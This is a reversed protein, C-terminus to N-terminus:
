PFSEKDACPELSAIKRMIDDAVEQYIRKLRAKSCRKAEDRLEQFLLPKGYKVGVRRPRPFKSHRGFAEHTGFARVPIVPATSKIVVLGIGSRAPQFQGTKTRTGEPFLVIAGGALLRDMIARLGAAGGGERDVPVVDWSRLVAGTVPHTFLTDRALYNIGRNLGAGILPPDLFSAHNSALVAPGSAPVREPNYVNWGFYFRYAARFVSWAIFYSPNM